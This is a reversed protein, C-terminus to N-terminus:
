PQIAKEPEESHLASESPLTQDQITQNTQSRKPDPSDSQLVDPPEKQSRNQQEPGPAMM